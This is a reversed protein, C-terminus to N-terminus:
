SRTADVAEFKIWVGREGGDILSFGTHRRSFDDFAAKAATALDGSDRGQSPPNTLEFEYPGGVISRDAQYFTAKIRL